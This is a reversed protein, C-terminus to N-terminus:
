NTKTTDKLNLLYRSLLTDSPNFKLYSVAVDNAMNLKGDRKYFDALAVAAERYDPQLELARHLFKESSKKDGASAYAYALYYNTISANPDLQLSRLLINICQQSQRTQLLQLAYTNMGNVENSLIHTKGPEFKYVEMIEFNKDGTVFLPAQNSVQYWEKLFAIHTVGKKVMNDTMINSYNKEHLQSIYEPNILGAVDVIKRQSYFAIAGVDHTAIVSNEPTNDRLWRATAVQRIAIHHTQDQYVVRNEYYASVSYIITVAFFIINLGNVTNKQNLYRNLAIFVLRSGHIFMLFYFPFIPMMYRGFRHAYPLKYWYIFIFIFIFLAPLLFRSHKLRFIDYIVSLVGIIFPVIMLVYASETFYGWVELKLFDGRSRFESSYYSLKAAYTNPMLNGSLLLNMGFYAALIIFFIIGIQILEKKEFLRIEENRKPSKQKLYVQLLYDIIVAAVFAIGDPRTWFILGLMVAFPVPKRIRYFYFAGLLTFIFMTTEMGSVAIFNMWRDVAFLLTAAVPLWNEKDFLNGSLRYYVYTSLCLFLIGLIYSLIFENKIILFGPVLLLTYVPSTSGATIIENKFYSFSHYDVLNKAFTLHIWPDDLPFGHEKNIGFAYNIYYVSLAAPIIILVAIIIIKVNKTLRINFSVDTQKQKIEAKKKQRAM